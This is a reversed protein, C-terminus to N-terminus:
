ASCYNLFSFQELFTQNLGKADEKKFTAPGLYANGHAASEMIIVQAEKMLEPNRTIFGMPVFAASNGPPSFHFLVCAFRTPVMFVEVRGGMVEGSYFHLSKDKTGRFQNTAARTTSQEAPYLLHVRESNKRKPKGPRPLEAEISEILMDLLSTRGWFPYDPALWAISTQLLQEDRTGAREGSFSSKVWDLIVDKNDPMYLNGLVPQTTGRYSVSKEVFVSQIYRVFDLGKKSLFQGIVKDDFREIFEELLTQQVGLPRRLKDSVATDIGLRFEEPAEDPYDIERVVEATTNLTVRAVVPLFFLRKSRVDSIKYIDIRDQTREKIRLIRQFHKQYAQEALRTSSGINESDLSLEVMNEPNLLGSRGDVPHFTLLDFDVTDTREKVVSFRPLEDVTENFKDSAYITLKAIGDEIRVLQEDVLSDLIIKTENNTFGFYARIQEPELGDCLRILRLVFETVKPLSENVTVSANVVFQRGPLAFTIRNFELLPEM